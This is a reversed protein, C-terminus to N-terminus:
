NVKYMSLLCTKAKYYSLIPSVDCQHCEPLLSLLQFPLHEKLHLFFQIMLKSNIYVVPYLYYAENGQILLVSM